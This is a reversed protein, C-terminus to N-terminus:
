DFFQNDIRVDFILKTRLRQLPPQQVLAEGMAGNLEGQPTGVESCNPPALLLGEAPARGEKSNVEGSQGFKLANRLHRESETVSEQTHYETLVAM